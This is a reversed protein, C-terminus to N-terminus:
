QASNYHSILDNRLVKKYISNSLSLSLSSACFLKKKPPPNKEKEM